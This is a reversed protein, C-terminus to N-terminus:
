HADRSVEAASFLSLWSRMTRAMSAKALPAAEAGSRDAMRAMSCGTSPMAKSVAFSM